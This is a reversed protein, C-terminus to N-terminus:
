KPKDSAPKDNIAKKKDDNWKVYVEVEDRMRALNRFALVTELTLNELRKTVTARAEKEFKEQAEKMLEKVLSNTLSKKLDKMLADEMLRMANPEDLSAM